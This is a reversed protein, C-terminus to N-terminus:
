RKTMNDENYRTLIDFVGRIKSVSHYAVKDRIKKPPKHTAKLGEIDGLDYIMHPLRHSTADVVRKHKPLLEFLKKQTM